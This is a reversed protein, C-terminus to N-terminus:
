NFKVDVKKQEIIGKEERAAQEEPSYSNMLVELPFQQVQKGFVDKHLLGIADHETRVLFANKGQREYVIVKDGAKLTTLIKSPNHPARLVIPQGSVPTEVATEYGKNVIHAVIEENVARLNLGNPKTNAQAVKQQYHKRRKELEQLRNQAQSTYTYAMLLLLILLISKM